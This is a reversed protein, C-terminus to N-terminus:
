AQQSSLLQNYQHQSRASQMVQTEITNTQIQHGLGLSLFNMKTFTTLNGFGCKKQQRGITKSLMFVAARYRGAAHRHNLEMIKTFATQVM